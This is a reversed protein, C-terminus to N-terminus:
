HQFDPNDAAINMTTQEYRAPTIGSFTEGLHSDSTITFKYTENKVRQTQFIYETGAAWLPNGSPQFRARYYYRTDPDLGSIVTEVPEGSTATLTSTQGSNYNGSTKGYEFYVAGSQDFIGNVTVSTATPRGLLVNYEPMVPLGGESKLTAIGTAWDRTTNLDVLQATYAGTSGVIRWGMQVTIDTADGSSSGFNTGLRPGFTFSNLWVSPADVNPGELGVIGILLENTQTTTSTAGTSVTATTGTATKTQDVVSINALGRFVSVVASRATVSSHNITITSSASLANVNYAAYIQTRVGAATGSVDNVSQLVLTYTNGAGDVMSSVTGEEDAAYSVMIDDGATVATNTTIVLSTGATKLQNRGIDGIFSIGADATKFSAIAAGYDRSTIGTKAATYSGAASVIRWGMSVTIEADTTTATSGTRPGATFSNSWTGAADGGPGETGIVGILLQDAYVTTVAGSSPSTSGTGFGASTQELAGSNALGSFVSVVAARAAVATSSYVTQTITIASGGPLAIVNYAAFIYSRVNGSSIAMAAQQYKNGVADTIAINLDQSPDTAYAIIIDNGASVATTTTVVLSATSSNKISNSGIDGIYSISGAPGSVSVQSDNITLVPILNKFTNATAMASYALDLQSTGTGIVNFTISIVITTGAAGSANAGNFTIQGSGTSATNVSGTFSAPPAGSNSQYSLVATNWNLTGTYSGLLNDPANVGSLNINITAVVQNGLSPTANSVSVSATASGTQANVPTNWTLLLGSLFLTVVPLYFNQFNFKYRLTRVQAKM